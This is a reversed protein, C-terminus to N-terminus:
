VSRSESVIKEILSKQSLKNFTQEKPLTYFTHGASGVHNTIEESDSASVKRQLVSSNNFVSM